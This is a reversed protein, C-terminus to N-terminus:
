LICYWATIYGPWVYSPKVPARHSFAAHVAQPELELVFGDGEICADQSLEDHTWSALM